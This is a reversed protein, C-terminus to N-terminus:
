GAFSPEFAARGLELLEGLADVDAGYKLEESSGAEFNAPAELAVIAQWMSRAAPVDFAECLTALLERMRAVSARAEAETKTGALLSKRLSCEYQRCADPRDAYFACLCGRLASCPQHMVLAGDDDVIRLGVRELREREENAVVVSGFLTGDCCLGCDMCVADAAAQSLATVRKHVPEAGDTLM